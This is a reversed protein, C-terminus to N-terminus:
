HANYQKGNDILNQVESRWRPPVSDITRLGLQILDYYVKVM